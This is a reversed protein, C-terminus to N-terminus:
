NENRASTRPTPELMEIHGRIFAIMAPSDWEAPGLLRGVENGERDILLTTPLGLANLARQAAGTQDVYIPLTELGLEQYFEKVAPLGTRDISLALVEFDAGGLAAQLRELTPMERRCPACWTAWLNLLVVRGRFQALTITEGEGNEFRIEPLPRSREHISFGPPPAVAATAESSADPSARTLAWALGLALALFTLAPLAFARSRAITGSATAAAKSAFSGRRTDSM